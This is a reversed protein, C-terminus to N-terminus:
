GNLPNNDWAGAEPDGTQWEAEKREQEDWAETRKRATELADAAAEPTEYPGMLEEGRARGPDNHEVVERTRVNFWYPM